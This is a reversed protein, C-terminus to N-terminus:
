NNILTDLEKRLHKIAPTVIAVFYAERLKRQAPADALYGRAGSHLMASHAARLSLESAELRAQLVDHFFENSDNFPDALLPTLRESLDLFDDQIEDPRDELYCNVHALLPEVDRMLQICSDILGMAMGGQLLIFGAKIKKLYPQVPDALLFRDAIFVQKFQCAFTGTGEMATFEALRKLSFGPTDCPMLFMIEHAAADDTRAIAGFYHDPGLNSVWPLTGNIVYGDAVRTATLQLPEIGSFYKMPNSLATGGLYVGSAIGPLVSERLSTNESNEVYWGCVDQCWTMFGTSLCEKAVVAMSHVATALDTEAQPNQSALHQQFVGNEGLARLVDAPYLGDRDVKVTLPALQMETVRQAADIVSQNLQPQNLEPATAAPTAVPTTGPNNETLSQSATTM